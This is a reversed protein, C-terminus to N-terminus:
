NQQDIVELEILEIDSNIPYNKLTDNQLIVGNHKFDQNKDNLSFSITKGVTNETQLHVRIKDGTKYNELENNDLDTIFYGIFEPTEERTIPKTNHTYNTGWAALYNSESNGDKVYGCSISLKETM